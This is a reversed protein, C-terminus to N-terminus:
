QKKFNITRGNKKATTAKKTGNKGAEKRREAKKAKTAGKACLTGQSKKQLMKKAFM